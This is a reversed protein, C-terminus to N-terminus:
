ANIKVATNERCMNTHNDNVCVVSVTIAPHSAAHRNKPPTNLTRIGSLRVGTTVFASPISGRNFSANTSYACDRPNTISGARTRVGVSLGRTSRITCNTRDDNQAPSVKVSKFSACALTSAHHAPRAPIRIWPM